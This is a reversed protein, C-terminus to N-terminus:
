DEQQEEFWEWFCDDDLITEDFNYAIVASKLIGYAVDRVKGRIEKDFDKIKEEACALDWLFDIADEWDADLVVSGHEKEIEKTM